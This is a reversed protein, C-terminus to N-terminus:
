ICTSIFFLLCCVQHNEQTLRELTQAQFDIKMKMDQLMAMASTDAEMGNKQGELSSSVMRRRKRNQSDELQDDYGQSNASAPEKASSSRETSSLSGSIAAKRKLSGSRNAVKRVAYEEEKKLTLLADKLRGDIAGVVGQIFVDFIDEWIYGLTQFDSDVREKCRARNGIINELTPAVAKAASPSIQALTSSLETYTKLKNEESNYAATGKHAENSLSCGSM